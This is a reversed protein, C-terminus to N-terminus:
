ILKKNTSVFSSAAATCSYVRVLVCNGFQAKSVALKYM